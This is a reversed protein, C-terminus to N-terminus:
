SLAADLVCAAEHQSEVESKHKRSQMMCRRLHHMLVPNDHVKFYAGLM